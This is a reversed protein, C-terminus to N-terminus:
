ITIGHDDEELDMGVDKSFGMKEGSKVVIAEQEDRRPKHEKKAFIKKKGAEEEGAKRGLKKILGLRKESNLGKKGKNKKEVVDDDENVTVEELEEVEELEGLGELEEIEEEYEEFEEGVEEVEDETEEENELFRDVSSEFVAGAAEEEPDAQLVNQIKKEINEEESDYSDLLEIQALLLTRIRIILQQELGRLREVKKVSNIIEEEAKKIIQEAKKRAEWIHLEAEKQANQKVEESIKQALVLTNQMAKEIEKYKSINDEQKQMKDKLDLNEKYLIEFDRIVEDLFEDVEDISYGRVGKKFEKNHIDLPTLM